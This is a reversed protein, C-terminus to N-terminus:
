ACAGCGVGAPIGRGVRGRTVVAIAPRRARPDRGQAAKGARALPRSLALSAAYLQPPLRPKPSTGAGCERNDGRPSGDSGIKGLRVSSNWVSRGRLTRPGGLKGRSAAFPQRSLSPNSGEARRLHVARRRGGVKGKAAVIPLRKVMGAAVMEAHRAYLYWANRHRNSLPLLPRHQAACPRRHRSVTSPGREASGSGTACTSTIHLIIAM